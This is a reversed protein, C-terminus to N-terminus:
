DGVEAMAFRRSEAYLERSLASVGVVKQLAGLIGSRRCVPISVRLPLRLTMSKVAGDSDGGSIGRGSIAVAEM